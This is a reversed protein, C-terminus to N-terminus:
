KWVLKGSSINEKWILLWYLFFLKSSSYFFRRSNNQLDNKSVFFDNVPEAIIIYLGWGKQPANTYMWRGGSLM